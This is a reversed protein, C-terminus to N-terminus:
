TLDIKALNYLMSIRTRLGPDGGATCWGKECGCDTAKVECANFMEDTGAQVYALHKAPPQIQYFLRRFLM